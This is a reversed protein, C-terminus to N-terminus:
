TRSSPSAKGRSSDRGLFEIEILKEDRRRVGGTGTNGDIYLVLSGGRKVRRIAQLGVRPDEADLLTQPVGEDGRGTHIAHLIRMWKDGQRRLSARDVVLDFRVGHQALLANLLRYSGFHFTCFVFPEGSAARALVSEPDALDTSELLFGFVPDAPDFHREDLTAWSQHFYIERLLQPHQDKSIDPLLHSLSASALEAHLIVSEPVTTPDRGMVSMRLALLEELYGFPEYM